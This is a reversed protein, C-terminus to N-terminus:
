FARFSSIRDLLQAQQFLTNLCWCKAYINLLAILVTALDMVSLSPFVLMGPRGGGGCGYHVRDM